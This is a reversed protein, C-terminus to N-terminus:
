QFQAFFRWIEGKTWTAVGSEDPSGDVPGPMHGGDFAAWQVPYGARCGSYTTTIHTRSGPTPERPSQPTCGNNSVFRDRLSRGQAIDLVSDSVGHIAFYAIPLAGGNCGSIEGGSIVAVARFVNARTCALAYSMGGGWSFGTAFRQATNVCLGGEIRRIMGDVFTIDEGGSNAWGNGLGQPAVLIATNDSQEQQGYYSWANGSTGGSAVEGATGGRWHFAFILRYPRSNTYNAPVRLIFSRSKGSSQITHTGSALTPASGCGSGGSSLKIMQWQQNGGGWDTYQVVNGGDGTSGGQVEVAKGSNRNILRVHGADSDALRFQQNAGNGDAWQAIAAGDATSAGAVDLVKGSHRAKLRYFGGGSDVFQWQQNAGDSRTWQTVRAGDATSVGYVDLAKGSNRNVLVYWANTDVTAAEAPTPKVAVLMGIALTAAVM